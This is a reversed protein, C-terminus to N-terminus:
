RRVLYPGEEGFGLATFVPLAAAAVTKLVWLMNYQKGAQLCKELLSRAAANGAYGDGISFDAIGAGKQHTAADPREGKTTIRAFGAATGDVYVILWINSLGNMEQLLQKNDYGSLSKIANIHDPNAVAFKTIIEQMTNDNFAM